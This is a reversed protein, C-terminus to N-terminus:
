NKNQHVDAMPCPIKLPHNQQYHQTFLHHVGKNTCQIAIIGIERKFFSTQFVSM